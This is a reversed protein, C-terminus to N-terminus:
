VSTCVREGGPERGLEVVRSLTCDRTVAVPHMQARPLAPDEPDHKRPLRGVGAWVLQVLSQVTILSAAATDQRDVDAQEVLLKGGKTDADDPMRPAAVQQLRCSRLRGACHPSATGSVAFGSLRQCRSQWLPFVAESRTRM